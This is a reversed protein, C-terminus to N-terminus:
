AAKKLLVRKWVSRGTYRMRTRTKPNGNTLRPISFRVTKLAAPSESLIRRSLRQAMPRLVVNNKANTENNPTLPAAQDMVMVWIKM